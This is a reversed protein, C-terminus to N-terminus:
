DHRVHGNTEDTDKPGNFENKAIPNDVFLGESEYRGRVDQYVFIFGDKEFGDSPGLKERYNDVGYPSVSYPTRTMLIPYTQSHDKPVYVSTFFGPDMGCRSAFSSSPTIRGRIIWPTARITASEQATLRFSALGLLVALVVGRWKVVGNTVGIYLFCFGQKPFNRQAKLRAGLPIFQRCCADM